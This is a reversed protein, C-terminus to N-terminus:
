ESTILYSKKETTCLYVDDFRNKYKLYDINAKDFSKYLAFVCPGSGSLGAFDSSCLESILTKIKPSKQVCLFDNHVLNIKGSEKLSNFLEGTSNSSFNSIRDIKNYMEKTGPKFGCKIILCHYKETLNAPTLVEGIGQARLTGGVLFFPVDAGLEKAVNILQDNSLLNNFYYNLAILTGAADASGGGLGSSLPINKIIECKVGTTIGATALYLEIAKNVINDSLTKDSKVSIEDGSFDFSLEDYLSISQMITDIEHYGNDLRGKVDLTLNIKANVLIKVAM